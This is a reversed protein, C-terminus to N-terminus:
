SCVDETGQPHWAHWKKVTSLTWTWNKKTNKDLKTHLYQVSLKFQKKYDEYKFIIYIQHSFTLKEFFLDQTYQDCFDFQESSLQIM